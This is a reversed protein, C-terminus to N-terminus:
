KRAALFRDEIGVGGGQSKQKVRKVKRNRLEGPRRGTMVGRRLLCGGGRM